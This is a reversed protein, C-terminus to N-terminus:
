QRITLLRTIGGGPDRGGVPASRKQFPSNQIAIAKRGSTRGPLAL